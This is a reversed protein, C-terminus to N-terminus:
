DHCIQEEKHGGGRWVCVGGRDYVGTIICENNQPWFQSIIILKTQININGWNEQM